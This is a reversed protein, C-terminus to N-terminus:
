EKKGKYCNRLTPINSGQLVNVNGMNMRSVATVSLDGGFGHNWRPFM